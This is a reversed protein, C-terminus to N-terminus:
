KVLLTKIEFPAFELSVSNDNVKLASLEEELLNTESVTSVPRGFTVTCNTRTRECEYLRVVYAGEVDYACKVAEVIVNPADLSLLPVHAGKLAGRVAVCPVNLEYAPRVVNEASWAGTHPLLSWTMEHVGEDGTVDPRCGSRHLTLVMRSGEVSIGYKCDNLLAVGYRTESMDTWKHNCVEFRAAELSNNRTTPRDISGFQIENKAFSAKVDVDFAVKLLSHKEHWDAVAHFDIRRSTAYFVQDVTVTTKRGLAYVCRIRHEVAGDSVTERSLLRASPRLKLDIDSDIDWNDWSRPVDEGFLFTGLPLTDGGDRVERRASKDYLSEITGDPAFRVSYYPTELTDGGEAFPSEYVVGTEKLAVTRAGFAPIHLGTIATVTRGAPDTYTQCAGGEVDAIEGEIVVADSRDHGLTNYLTIYNEDGDTMSEGYGRAIAAADNIVGTVEKRALDNVCTLSTGPLIDHFQNMLLTKYLEDTRENEPAGAYVNMFEMDRLAFEAKRNNRKIDHMQTLTGRHLELYLEGDYVPLRDSKKELRKMYDSVSMYETEPLGPLGMTRRASEIMGYTPGGGGDGYGFAALRSDDDRKNQLAAVANHITEPDPYCHTVFFHTLVETGDMGRWLFSECPFRNLDNWGIKTTLFYKVGALKMIQPIASNYGFTDPLWFADSTYGFHERTFRQGYIFQRAMLEGSTINCDCEVWVAGNPEYRGEAVRKKMREFIDPYYRRMWDAHLASSQIFRYEPYVDMLDLAESYTRACKRVTEAVPWLWATDMHSHGTLAVFGRSEEPAAKELAPALLARCKYAAERLEADTYHLPYLALEGYVADLADRAIGRLAIDDPLQSLQIVTRLDFVFDKMEEDMYAVTISDFTRAFDSDPASDRGYNDFPSSGACFHGAYCEFAMEHTEGDAANATVLCAAHNGGVFDNKSNILGCPSGDRFCLIESAGTKPLAYLKKGAASAPARVSGKIWLNGWEGGWRRGAELPEWAGVEDPSRLHEKTEACVAGDLTGVPVFILRGYHEVLNKLKGITRSTYAEYHM